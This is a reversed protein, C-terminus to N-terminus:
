PMARGMACLISVILRLMHLPDAVPGNDAPRYGFGQGIRNLLTIERQKVLDECHAPRYPL